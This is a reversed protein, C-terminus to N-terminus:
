RRAKDHISQCARCVRAGSAPNIYLNDGSLQHGRKCVEKLQLAARAREQNVIRTVPELHMGNVCITVRCLHDLELGEPIPGIDHEYAFRHAWVNKGAEITFYGYARDVGGYPGIWFHCGTNPEPLIFREFRAWPDERTVFTKPGDFGIRRLARIITMDNVGFVAAVAKYAMGSSRMGAAEDVQAATLSPKM